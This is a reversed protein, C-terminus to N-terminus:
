SPFVNGELYPIMGEMDYDTLLNFLTGTSLIKESM